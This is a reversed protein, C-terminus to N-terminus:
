SAKTASFMIYFGNRVFTFDVLGCSRCLDEIEVESLFINSGAFQSIYPRGIRLVPVAPPLVDAIFTSAVFVGGPRLVRSIEAVACAPSPWCHIAAGAHVADISGTVFPLRSIDARVLALTKDSINEQKIFENCQKLMNESFDLAVVLSYLESKVFLRSFLGSGCSADVIIGGTTPKLYTQAMEFEKELGPFGGWIFNQRWGREYLFSVLSTRFIETTLPMSESYETSGVAVTMDWYDKRNPYNKKCTSCELSSPVEFPESQSSSRILPYYCIPCALKSLKNEVEPPVSPEAVAEGDVPAAPIAAESSVSARLPATHRLRKAVAPYGPVRRAPPAVRSLLRHGGRGCLAAAASAASASRSRM